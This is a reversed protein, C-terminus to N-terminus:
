DCLVTTIARVGLRTPGSALGTVNLSQSWLAVTRTERLQANQVISFRQSRSTRSLVTSDTHGSCETSGHMGEVLNTHRKTHSSGHVAVRSCAYATSSWRRKTKLRCDRREDSSDPLFLTSEIAQHQAYSRIGECVSQSSQTTEM